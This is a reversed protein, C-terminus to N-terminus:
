VLSPDPTPPTLVLRIKKPISPIPLNYQKYLKDISRYKLPRSKRPQKSWYDLLCQKTFIDKELRYEDENPLSNEWRIQYEIQNFRSRRHSIISDLAREKFNTAETDPKRQRQQVRLFEQKSKGNIRKHKGVPLIKNVALNRSELILDEESKDEDAADRKSNNLTLQNDLDERIDVDIKDVATGNALKKIFTYEKFERLKNMNVSFERKSIPDQVVYISPYPNDQIM